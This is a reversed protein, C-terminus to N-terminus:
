PCAGLNKASAAPSPPTAFAPEIFLRPLIL